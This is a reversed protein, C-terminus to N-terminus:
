RIITVTGTIPKKTKGDNLNIIYYYTELPLMRGNIDRGDWPIPYDKSSIYVRRGWRDFVEVICDPYDKLLSINWFDNDGDDNPTFTNPIKGEFEETHCAFITITDSAHCDEFEARVWFKSDRKMDHNYVNIQTLFEGSEGTSWSYFTEAPNNETDRAYLTFEPTCIIKDADISVNPHPNEIVEIFSSLTCNNYDVTILEYIGSKNIYGDPSVTEDVWRYSQFKSKNFEVTVGAGSCFTYYLETFHAYDGVIEIDLFAWNGKCGQLSTERVGIQYVGKFDSWEVIITDNHQTEMLTGADQSLSYDFISGKVGSAAFVSKSGICVKQNQSLTPTFIFLSFIILLQFILIEPQALCCLWAPFKLRSGITMEIFLLRGLSKIHNDIRM